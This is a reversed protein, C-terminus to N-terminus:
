GDDEIEMIWDSDEIGYTMKIIEIEAMVAESNRATVAFELARRIEDLIFGNEEGGPGPLAFCDFIYACTKGPSKRLMRGRRQIFERKTKSSSLVVGHSVAPVDVGEDLCKIALMVGGHDVFYQLEKRRQYRDMGSWYRSPSLTQIRARLTRDVDNIMKEDECYVLWHQGHEYVEEVVRVAADIKGSAGRIIRRANFVLIKLYESPEDDKKLMAFRRRIEARLRDYKEQEQPTLAVESIQYEYPTLHKDDLAEKLQYHDVIAGLFGILRGTGEADGQREPTASLGLRLQPTTECIPAFSPAGLRHCEDVVILMKREAGGVARNFRRLVDPQRFSHFIAVLLLPPGSDVRMDQLAEYGDREGAGLLRMEVGPLYRRIEEEWQYLLPEGPVLVTVNGREGLHAHIASIATITKGSGTAHGLIGQCDAERWKRLGRKQHDRLGPLASEIKYELHTTAMRHKGYIEDWKNKLRSQRKRAAKRHSELILDVGHDHIFERDVDRIPVVPFTLSDDNAITRQLDNHWRSGLADWVPVEWNWAVNFSEANGQDFPKLASLTENGSGDFAVINGFEDAFYGKKHHYIDGRLVAVYMELRRHHILACLMRTADVTDRNKLLAELDEKFGESKYAAVATDFDGMDMQTSTVMHVTGGRICFELLDETM